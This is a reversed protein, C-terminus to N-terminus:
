FRSLEDVTCCLFLAHTGSTTKCVLRLHVGTTQAAPLQAARHVITTSAPRRDLTRISAWESEFGSSDLGKGRILSM